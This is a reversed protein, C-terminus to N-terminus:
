KRVFTTFKYTLYLDIRVTAKKHNIIQSSPVCFGM